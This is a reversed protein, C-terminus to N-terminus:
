IGNGIFEKEVTGTFKEKLESVLEEISELACIRLGDNFSFMGLAKQQKAIILILEKALEKMNPKAAYIHMLEAEVDMRKGVGWSM